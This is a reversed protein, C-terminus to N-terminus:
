LGDLRNLQSRPKAAQFDTLEFNYAIGYEEREDYTTLDELKKLLEPSDTLVMGGHGTTMMKTAFFSFISLDGFSGLKKGKYVAGISQACDEIIPINLEMIGDMDAPCGFMHPVIVAKTKDSIKKGASEPALNYGEDIDALVPTAGTYNVASLVSACVYTPLLVEDGPKIDLAKLALYLANTGSNVAVGDLVGIYRSMDKEFLEVENGSAIQGSRLNSVVAYIEEEKITPRSHPVKM